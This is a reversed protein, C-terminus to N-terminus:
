RLPVDVKTSEKTKSIVFTYVWMLTFSPIIDTYPLIEELFVLVAAIKGKKGPYMEKMKKAAYPAWLIDSFEGIVPISFSLMGILDFLISKKLLQYKEKKDMNRYRPEM